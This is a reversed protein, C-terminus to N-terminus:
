GGRSSVFAEMYFRAQEPGYAHERGVPCARRALCGRARCDCAEDAELRAACAAADYGAENFAGVSCASLCCGDECADCPCSVAERAEIEVDEAFALAGRFSTWLGFESHILLGLPSASFSGARRAWQQFPLHPPGEFPFVARAGLREALAGVIRRSFRDLPDARGDAYEPSAAFTPWNRRGVMGVLVITKAGALEGARLPTAGLPALGVSEIEGFIRTFFTM